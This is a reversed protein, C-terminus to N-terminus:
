VCMLPPCQIVTSPAPLSGPRLVSLSTAKLSVALAEARSFFVLFFSFASALSPYCPGTSFAFPHCLASFSPKPKSGWWSTLLNRNQDCQSCSSWAASWRTQTEPVPPLAEFVAFIFEHCFALWSSTSTPSLCKPSYGWKAWRQTMPLPDQYKKLELFNLLWEKKKQGHWVAQLIETEWGPISGPGRCHFCWTRVVPCGPFERFAM